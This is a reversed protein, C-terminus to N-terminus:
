ALDVAHGSVKELPDLFFRHSSGPDRVCSLPFVYSVSLVELSEMRAPSFVVIIM